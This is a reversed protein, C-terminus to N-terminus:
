ALTKTQSYPLSPGGGASAVAIHARQPTAIIRERKLLGAAEIEGLTKELHTRYAPTM